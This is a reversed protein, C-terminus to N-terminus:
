YRPPLVLLDLPPFGMFMNETLSKATIKAPFDSDAVTERIASAIEDRATYAVCINVVKGRNNKTANMTKSIARLVNNELLELRGLVRIRLNHKKVLPDNDGMEGVTGELLKMLVDVQEKPRNFNELSFAYLSIVNVGCDFCTDVIKVLAKAGALYGSAISIGNEKAYRRNGDM